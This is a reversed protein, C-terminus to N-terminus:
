LLFKDHPQLHFAIGQMSLINQCEGVQHECHQGQLLYTLCMVMVRTFFMHNQQHGKPFCRYSKVLTTSVHFFHLPM